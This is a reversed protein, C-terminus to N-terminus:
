THQRGWQCALGELPMSTFMLNTWFFHILALLHYTPRCRSFSSKRSCTQRFIIINDGGPQIREEKQTHTHPPPPSGHVKNARSTDVTKSLCCSQLQDSSATLSRCCVFGRHQPTYSAQFWMCSGSLVAGRRRQCRVRARVLWIYWWM